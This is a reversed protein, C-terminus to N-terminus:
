VLAALHGCVRQFLRRQVRLRAKKQPHQPRLLHRLMRLRVWKLVKQRTKWLQGQAASLIMVTRGAAKGLPNM